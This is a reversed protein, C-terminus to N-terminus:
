LCVQASCIVQHQHWGLLMNMCHMAALAYWQELGPVSLSFALEEVEKRKKQWNEVGSEAGEAAKLVRVPGACLGVQTFPLCDSVQAKHTCVSRGSPVPMVNGSLSNLNSNSGQTCRHRVARGDCGWNGALVGDLQGGPLTLISLSPSTRRHRDSPPCCCLLLTATPVHQRRMKRGCSKISAGLSRCAASYCCAAGPQTM